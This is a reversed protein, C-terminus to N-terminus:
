SLPSDAFPLPTKGALDGGDWLPRPLDQRPSPFDPDDWRAEYAAFGRELDGALLLLEGLQLRAKPDGPALAVAREAAAIAEDPRGARNEAHALGRCARVLLARGHRELLAAMEPAGLLTEVAPLLRFADSHTTSM